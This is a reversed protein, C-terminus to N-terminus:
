SALALTSSALEFMICYRLWATHHGHFAGQREGECEQEAPAGTAGLQTLVGVLSGEILRRRQVVPPPPRHGAAQVPALAARQHIVLPRELHAVDEGHHEALPGLRALAGAGT